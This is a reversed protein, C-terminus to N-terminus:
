NVLKLMETGPAELRCVQLREKRGGIFSKWDVAQRQTEALHLHHYSICKCYCARFLYIFLSQKNKNPHDDNIEVGKKGRLM